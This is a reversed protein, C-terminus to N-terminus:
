APMTMTGSFGAFPTVVMGITNGIDDYQIQQWLPASIQQQYTDQDFGAYPNTLSSAPVYNGSADYYGGPLISEPGSPVSAQYYIPNGNSDTGAYVAPQSNGNGNGLPISIQPQVNQPIGTPDFGTTGPTPTPIAPATPTTPTPSPIAPATPATYPSYSGDANQTYLGGNPGTFTGDGNNTVPANPSLGLSTSPIPSQIPSPMAPATPTQTPAGNTPTQTPAGNNIVNNNIPTPLVPIPATQTPATYPSYSGDGNQTYQNGDSGTFTGDANQTYTIAPTVPATQIPNNIPQQVPNNFLGSPIQQQVPQPAMGPPMGMPPLSGIGNGPAPSGPAQPVTSYLQNTAPAVPGSVPAIGTEIQGLSTAAM